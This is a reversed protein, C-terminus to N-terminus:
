HPMVDDVELRKQCNTEGARSVPLELGAPSSQVEYCLPDDEEVEVDDGYDDGDDADDGERRLSHERGREGRKRRGRRSWWTWTPM